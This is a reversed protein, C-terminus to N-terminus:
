AMVAAALLMWFFSAVVAASDEEEDKSASLEEEQSAPIAVCTVGNTVLPADVDTCQGLDGVPETYVHRIWSRTYPVLENETGVVSCFDQLVVDPEALRYEFWGSIGSGSTDYVKKSQVSVFDKLEEEFKNLVNNTESGTYIWVDADKGFAVFEETSMYNRDCAVSDISGEESHLIKASCAAAFECYYNPCRAVDWGGCFDSHAAWLVVPEKQMDTELIAANSEVCEYRSKAEDFVENAKDELNFFVSYYKIWEFVALNTTEETVSIRISNKLAVDGFHGIFAPLEDSVGEFNSANSPNLVETIKGEDVLERLCPSAVYQATGLYTSIKNRIGLLEIFPVQTTSILAAGTFPIPVIAAHRGDMQDTPPETGCQYLLYTEDAALNTVVKYTNNYEISWQLSEEPEVKHAFYDTGEVVAELCELPNASSVVSRFGAALIFASCFKM